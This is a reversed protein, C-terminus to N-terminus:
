FGIGSQADERAAREIQDYQQELRAIRAQAQRAKRRTIASDQPLSAILQQRRIETKIRDLQAQYFESIRPSAGANAAPRNGDARFGSGSGRGGM